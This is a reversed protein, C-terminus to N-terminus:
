VSKARLEYFIGQSEVWIPEYDIMSVLWDSVGIKLYPLFKFEIEFDTQSIAAIEDIIDLLWTETFNLRLKQLKPIKMFIMSLIDSIPPIKEGDSFVTNEDFSLLNLPKSFMKFIDLDQFFCSVHDVEFEPSDNPYAYQAKLVRIQSLESFTSFMSAKVEFPGNECSISKLALRLSESIRM